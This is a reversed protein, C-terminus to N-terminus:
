EMGDDHEAVTYTAAGGHGRGARSSRTATRGRRGPNSNGSRSAPRVPWRPFGARGSTVELDVDGIAVIGVSVGPDDAVALSAAAAAAQPGDSGQGVVARIGM